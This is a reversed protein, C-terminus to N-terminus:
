AKKATRDVSSGCFYDVFTGVKAAIVGTILILLDKDTAETHLLMIGLALGFLGITLSVILFGLMWKGKGRKDLEKFYQQTTRERDRQHVEETSQANQFSATAMQVALEQLRVRHTSELKELKTKADPDHDIKDLLAENNNPDVGFQIAVLQGIAAGAPGGLVTGLLPAGLRAVTKGIELLNM